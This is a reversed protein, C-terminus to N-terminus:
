NVLFRMGINYLFFDGGIVDIARLDLEKAEDIIEYLRELPITCDIKERRDAYCYICDTM